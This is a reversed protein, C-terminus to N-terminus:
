ITNGTISPVTGFFDPVTTYGIWGTGDFDYTGHIWIKDEISDLANPYATNDTFGNLLGGNKFHIGDTSWLCTQDVFYGGDLSVQVAIFVGNHYTTNMVRNNYIVNMEWDLGNESVYMLADINAWTPDYRNSQFYYKGEAEFMSWIGGWGWWVRGSGDHNYITRVLTWDVMNNSRYILYSDNKTTSGCIMIYYDEVKLVNGHYGCNAVTKEYELHIGDYSSVIYQNAGVGDVIAYYKDRIKYCGYLGDNHCDPSRYYYNWNIGDKTVAVAGRSDHLSNDYYSIYLAISDEIKRFFTGTPYEGLEVPMLNPDRYNKSM